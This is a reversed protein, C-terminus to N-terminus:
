GIFGAFGTISYFSCFILHFCRFFIVVEDDRQEHQRYNEDRCCQEKAAISDMGVTEFYAFGPQVRSELGIELIIDFKVLFGALVNGVADVLIERCDVSKVALFGFLLLGEQGPRQATARATLRQHIGDYPKIVVTNNIVIGGIVDAGTLLQAEHHAVILQLHNVCAVHLGHTLGVCPKSVGQAAICGNLFGQLTHVDAIVEHGVHHYIDLFVLFPQALVQAIGQARWACDLRALGDDPATVDDGRLFCGGDDAVLVFDNAAVLM